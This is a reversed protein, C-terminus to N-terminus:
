KILYINNTNLFIQIYNTYNIFHSKIILHFLNNKTLIKKSVMKEIPATQAASLTVASSRATSLLPSSNAISEDESSLKFVLPSSIATPLLTFLLPFEFSEKLPLSTKDSGTLGFYVM